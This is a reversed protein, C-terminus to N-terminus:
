AHQRLFEDYREPAVQHHFALLNITAAALARARRARDAIAAIPETFGGEVQAFALLVDQVCESLGKEVGEDLPTLDAQALLFEFGEAGDSYPPRAQSGNFMVEALTEDQDALYTEYKLVYVYLDVVTDIVSEDQTVPAGDAVFELRDVKRAINAIISIQEGRRKWANRYAASKQRHLRRTAERFTQSISNAIV